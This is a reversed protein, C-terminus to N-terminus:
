TPNLRGELKKKIDKRGDSGREKTVNQWDSFICYRILSFLPLSKKLYELVNLSPSQIKQLAPPSQLSIKLNPSKYSYATDVIEEAGQLTRWLFSYFQTFTRWILKMKSFFSSFQPTSADSFFRTRCSKLYFLLYQYTHELVFHTLRKNKYYNKIIKEM